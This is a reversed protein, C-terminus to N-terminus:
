IFVFEVFINEEISDGFLFRDRVSGDNMETENYMIIWNAKQIVDLDNLTHIEDETDLCDDEMCKKVKRNGYLKSIAERLEAMQKSPVHDITFTCEYDGTYDDRLNLTIGEICVDTKTFERTEENLSMSPIEVGFPTISIELTSCHEYAAKFMPFDFIKELAEGLEKKCLFEKRPKDKYGKTIELLENFDKESLIESHSTNEM